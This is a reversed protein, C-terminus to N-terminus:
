VGVSKAAEWVARRQGADDSIRLVDLIANDDVVEGDVVGRHRAFRSEIDAELEVIRHRLDPEAQAATFADDLVALQRSVLPDLGTTDRVARVEAFADRDALADSLAVTATARRQQTADSADVNADWWAENAAATLPELTATCQSVLAEATM